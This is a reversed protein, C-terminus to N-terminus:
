TGGRQNQVIQSSICMLHGDAVIGVSVGTFEAIDKITIPM